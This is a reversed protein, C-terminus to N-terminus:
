LLQKLESVAQSFSCGSELVFDIANNGHRTCGFCHYTNDPYIVMSPDTDGHFPCRVSQRRGTNRIGLVTTIPIERLLELDLNTM